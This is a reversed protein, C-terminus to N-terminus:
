LVYACELAGFLTMKVHRSINNATAGVSRVCLFISRLFLFLAAPTNVDHATLSDASGGYEGRKERLSQNEVQSRSHHPSLRRSYISLAGAESTM